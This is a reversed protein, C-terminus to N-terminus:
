RNDELEVETWLFAADVIGAEGVAVLRVENWGRLQDVLSRVGDEHAGAGADVETFFGVSVRQVLQHSEVRIGSPLVVVQPFARATDPAVIGAVAVDIAAATLWSSVHGTLSM